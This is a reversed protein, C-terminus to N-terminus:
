DFACHRKLLELDRRRDGSWDRLLREALTVGSELLPELPELFLSEDDGQSSIQGQRQLGSRALGTVERAVDLLTRKGVRTQLGQRWSAHYLTELEDRSLGAFLNLCEQLAGADYFVGKLLAAVAPVLRPPLSDASRVEVQPRLRVEPFLTSLHLDWDRLEAKYGAYGERMYRRFSVRERTFDVFHGDRLIFYMPVDLTYEVYTAFGAGPEFLSHILGTRDPDTHAWIEGRTSLCGTPRGDMVPSNAFLAYLLPSLYQAARLKDICDAEDSFDLNIQIGATQKMMAQGLRGTREMYPGMIGYRRKPLWAIAELPTFPQAGLGLFMLGLPDAAARVQRIHDGLDSACCHINSCLRGSLEIQGGPELTVSSHEGFLALLHGDERVERWTGRGALTEMLVQIEAVPAAEGSDRVIVLKESEAGIGWRSPERAGAALFDCLQQRSELPQNLDSRNLTSM